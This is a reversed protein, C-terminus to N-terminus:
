AHGPFPTAIWSLGVSWAVLAVPFVVDGGNGCGGGVCGIASVYLVVLSVAWLAFAVLALLARGYLKQSARILALALFYLPSTAFLIFAFKLWWPLVSANPEDLAQSYEYALYIPSLVFLAVAPFVLFAWRRRGDQPVPLGAPAEGSM